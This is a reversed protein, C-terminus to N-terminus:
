TDPEIIRYRREIIEQVTRLHCPYVVPHDEEFEVIQESM